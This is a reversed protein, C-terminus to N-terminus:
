ASLYIGKINAGFVVGRNPSMMLLIISSEVMMLAIQLSLWFETL